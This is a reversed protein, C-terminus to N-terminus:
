DRAFTFARASDGGIRIAEPYSNESFAAIIANDEESHNEDMLEVVQTPLTGVHEVLKDLHRMRYAGELITALVLGFAARRKRRADHWVNPASPTWAALSALAVAILKSAVPSITPKILTM